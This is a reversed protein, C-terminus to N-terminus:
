FPEGNGTQAAPAQGTDGSKEGDAKAEAKAETPYFEKTVEDRVKDIAELFANLADKNWPVTIGKKTPRFEETDEDALYFERIDLYTRGKFTNRQLRIEANNSKGYSAFFKDSKDAM